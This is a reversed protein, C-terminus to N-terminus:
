QPENHSNRTIEIYRILLVITGDGLDVVINNSERHPWIQLNQSAKQLNPIGISRPMDLRLSLLNGLLSTTFTWIQLNQSVKQLNPVPTALLKLNQVCNCRSMDRRLSSSQRHVRFPAHDPGPASNRFKPVGVRFKSPM